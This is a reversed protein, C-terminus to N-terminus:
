SLGWFRRLVGKPSKPSLNLDLISPHEIIQAGFGLVRFGFIQHSVKAWIEDLCILCKLELHCVRPARLGLVGVGGLAIFGLSGLGQM